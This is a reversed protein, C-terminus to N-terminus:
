KNVAWWPSPTKLVKNKLIVTYDSGGRPGLNSGPVPSGSASVRVVLGGCRRILIIIMKNFHTQLKNILKIRNIFM